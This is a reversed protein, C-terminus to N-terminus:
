AFPVAFAFIRFVANRIQEFFDLNGPCRLYQNKPLTLLFLTPITALVLDPLTNYIRNFDQNTIELTVSCM